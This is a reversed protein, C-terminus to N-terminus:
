SSFRLFRFISPVKLFMNGAAYVQVDCLELRDYRNQLYLTVFQGITGTQCKLEIDNAEPRDTPYEACIYSQQFMDQAVHPIELHSHDFYKARSFILGSSDVLVKVGRVSNMIDYYCYHLSLGKDYLLSDVEPHPMKFNQSSRSSSRKNDTNFHFYHKMSKMGDVQGPNGDDRCCFYYTSKNLTYNGKPLYGEYSNNGLTSEERDVFTIYGSKFGVPCLEGLQYICYTGSPWLIKNELKTDFDTDKTCFHKSVGADKHFGGKLMIGKSWYEMKYDKVTVYDIFHWRVGKEWVFDKSSPCGSVPMPLGYKGSPWNSYKRKPVQLKTYIKVRVISYTKQLDVRWWPEAIFGTTTCTYLLSDVAFIAQGGDETSIQRSPKGKAVEIVKNTFGKETSGTFPVSNFTAYFGRGNGVKWKWSLYVLLLHRRSSYIDPPKNIDCFSGILRDQQTEGDYVYLVDGQGSCNREGVNSHLDFDGFILQVHQNEQAKMLWRHYHAASQPKAELYEFAFPYNPSTVIACPQTCVTFNMHSLLSKECPGCKSERISALFGHHQYKEQEMQHCTVLTLLLREINQGIVLLPATGSIRKTTIEKGDSDTIKWDPCQTLSQTTRFVQQHIWDYEVTALRIRNWVTWLSM